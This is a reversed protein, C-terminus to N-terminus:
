IAAPMAGNKFKSINVIFVDELTPTIPVFPSPPEGGAQLVAQLQGPSGARSDLFLHLSAGCPEISVVGPCDKLLSRIRQRHPTTIEYCQEPVASRLQDPAGCALMRGQHLLAVRHCQQAEDLYATSILITIGDKALRYLLLWLDRRSVPDLGNTPEDLVLIRPRHLLTCMLALKQKMGGSLKGTERHRFGTLQTMELLSAFAASRQGATLGYLDAYFTMNEEVSLDPYFGFRQAMYAMVDRLPGTQSAAFGDVVVEGATPALLGCILRLTTSKGAGDPGVLGFIEGRAIDLNLDEVAVASGFRRSLQRARIIPEM